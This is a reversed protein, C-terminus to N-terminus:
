VVRKLRGDGRNGFDTWISGDDLVVVTQNTRRRWTAYGREGVALSVERDTGPWHYTEDELWRGVLATAKQFGEGVRPMTQGEQTVPQPAPTTARVPWAVQLLRDTIRDTDFAEWDPTPGATFVTAGLVCADKQLERAYALLEGVYQEPGIGDRLWGGKGGEVADRGCESIILPPDGPQWLRRYRLAHWPTFGQAGWYCHLAVADVGAFGQSRLYAWDEVEPNGTSFSFGAVRLGQAHLLAAARQTWATYDALGESLRQYCENLLEVYLLPHRYGGLRQLIVGVAAEPSLRSLDQDPFYARFVRLADPRAVTLPSPDDLAKVIQAVRAWALAPETPRIIHPGIM